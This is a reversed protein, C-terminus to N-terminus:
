FRYMANAFWMRGPNPFGDALSYNRDTLNTVGAETTIAPLPRYVAKVNLTTYGDLRVTNSAWRSGASEIFAILETNATPRATANLTLKSTPIDTIKVKPDSDNKLNTYTYNGGVDLWATVPSILSLEVGSSQVRGINVMQCKTTSTCSTGVTAVYISQIKDKIESHFIAAEARAGTWPTGQYGVEYNLSSESRLGPNEIFSGLRASYRDKLTPLRSKDAVTFYFRTGSSYDYFLGAQANNAHKVSPLQYTSTTKFVEQPRLQHSAIGLSLLLQPSLQINDEAGWSILTDRFSETPKLAADRAIHSDVKYHAILKIENNAIRTSDIEISGGHTRDDYTSIGSAPLVTYTANSFMNLGNGYKDLYWKFKVVETSSIATKTALSLSEKDWYPWQWYRASAPYTSPPQGKEGNQKYYSLVYEDSANPLLGIKFSVKDDKRYSNERHGGNETATPTFSSSLPFYDSEAYSLGAQLYWMGQRSGVNASAQRDNGSGFGIRVDGEMAKTPKRSVLNIAGGLTNPGYVISSFGKAVQIAALDATTFRNFDVYGDYPVYVPMGDIFLPAQRADFGRLYVMKENRVNTSINVGSLLNVADGVNDRNFKQMEQQTIVSAVQDEAISGNDVRGVVRVEGLEFAAEAAALVAPSFAVVLLAVLPKIRPLRRHTHFSNSM